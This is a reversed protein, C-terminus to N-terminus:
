IEHIVEVKNDYLYNIQIIRGALSNFFEKQEEEGLCYHSTIEIM